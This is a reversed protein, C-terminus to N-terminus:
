LVVIIHVAVTKGDIMISIHHHPHPNSIFMGFAPVIQGIAQATAAPVVVDFELIKRGDCCIEVHLSESSMATNFFRLTPQFTQGHTVPSPISSELTTHDNVYAPCHEGDVGKAGDVGNQASLAAGRDGRVHGKGGMGPIAFAKGGPVFPGGLGGAHGPNECCNGGNGSDGSDGARADVDGGKGGKLPGQDDAIPVGNKGGLTSSGGVGGTAKARGGSGGGGGNGPAKGDEGNVGFGGAGGRATAKGGAGPTMEAGSPARKNLTGRGGGIKGASAGAGGFAYAGGGDGAPFATRGKAPCPAVPDCPTGSGGGGGTANADGGDATESADFGAIDTATFDAPTLVKCDVIAGSGPGAAGGRATAAGGDGAFQDCASADGGDGGVALGEGGYGGPRLAIKGQAKGAIDLTFEIERAKIVVVGAAGGKGGCASKVTEGDEDPGGNKGFVHAFGGDGGRGPAINASITVKGPCQIHVNGGDGGNGGQGTNGPDVVVNGGPSGDLMQIQQNITVNGADCTAVFGQADGGNTGVNLGGVAKKLAVRPSTTAGVIPADIVIDGHSYIETGPEATVVAGPEVRFGEAFIRGSLHVRGTVRMPGNAAARSRLEAPDIDAFPRFNAFRRNAGFEIPTRADAHRSPAVLAAAVLGLGLFTRSRNALAPMTERRASLWAEVLRLTL